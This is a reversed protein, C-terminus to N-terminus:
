YGKIYYRKNKIIKYILYLSFISIFIILATIRYTEIINGFFSLLFVLPIIGLITALAFKTIEMTTTGAMYSIYEFPNKPFLRNILIFKLIHKHEEELMKRYIYNKEFKKSIFNHLIHRGILFAICAGITASLVTTIFGLAHGFVIGGVFAFPSIPLPTILILIIIISAFILPGKVTGSDKLFSEAKIYLNPARSLIIISGILFILVLAIKIKDSKELYNM